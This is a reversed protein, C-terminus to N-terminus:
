VLPGPPLLQLQKTVGSQQIEAGRMRQTLHEGAHHHTAAKFLAVNEPRCAVIAQYTRARCHSQKTHERGLMSGVQVPNSTGPGCMDTRNTSGYTDRDLDARGINSKVAPSIANQRRGSRMSM